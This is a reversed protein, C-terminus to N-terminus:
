PKAAVRVEVVIGLIKYGSIWIEDRSSHQKVFLRYIYHHLISGGLIDKEM